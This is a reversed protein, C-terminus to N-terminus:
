KYGYVMAWHTREVPSSLIEVIVYYTGTAPAVVHAGASRGHQWSDNEVLRGHNDYVHISIKASDNDTGTCFWYDNGKFLTHTIAQQQKVGLDGGWQDDRVLYGQKVYPSIAETARAIADDVSALCKGGLALLTVAIILRRVFRARLM